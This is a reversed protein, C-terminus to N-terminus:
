DKPGSKKEIRQLAIRAKEAYTGNPQTRLYAQFMTQAEDNKSLRDLTEALRFTADPQNPKYDLADRFRSEAGKYNKDKFYLGGAEMDKTFERDAESTSEEGPPSSWCTHTAADLCTPALRDITRKMRSKSKDPAGPITGLDPVPADASSPLPDPHPVFIWPPPLPPSPTPLVPPSSPDQQQSNNQGFCNLVTLGLVVIKAWFDAM